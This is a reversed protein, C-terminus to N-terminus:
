AAGQRVIQLELRKIERLTALHNMRMFMWMKLLGVGNLCFWASLSWIAFDRTTDAYWLQYVCYIALGFVVFTMVFAYGTWFKMSGHFSDAFQSMLGPEDDLSKLFAADDDDLAKRLTENTSTM